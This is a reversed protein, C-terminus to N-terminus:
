GAETLGYLALGAVLAGRPDSDSRYGPPADFGEFPLLVSVPVEILGDIFGEIGRWTAVLNTLYVHEVPMGRTESAAYVQARNIDELLELFLPKLVSYLADTVSLERDDNDESIDLALKQNRILMTRADSEALELEQCLQEVLQKEGFLIDRQYILRRGSLVTIYTHTYGISVTMLNATHNHGHQVTVLRRIATPEIELVNVVLGAKRLFELHSVVQDRRAMAVLVSREQGDKVQPRIMMYDIVYNAIDDEVREAIRQVIHEEDQKGSQHLYSIMMTKLRDPPMCTVVDHGVFGNKKLAKRLFPRLLKASARLDDAITLHASASPEIRQGLKRFQVLRVGNADLDIGIPGFSLDSHKRAIVAPFRASLQPPLSLTM